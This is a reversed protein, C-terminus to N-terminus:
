LYKEKLAKEVLYNTSRSDKEAEKDIIAWLSKDLYISKQAKGTLKERQKAM